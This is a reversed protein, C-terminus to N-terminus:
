LPSELCVSFESGALLDHIEAYNEIMERPSESETKKFESM